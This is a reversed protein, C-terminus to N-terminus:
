APAVRQEYPPLELAPRVLAVRGGLTVVTEIPAALPRTLLDYTSLSAAAAAAATTAAATTGEVAAGRRAARELVVPM